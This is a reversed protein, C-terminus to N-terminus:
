RKAKTKRRIRRSTQRPPQEGGLVLPSSVTLERFEARPSPRERQASVARHESSGQPPGVRKPHLLCSTWADLQGMTIGPHTDLRRDRGRVGSVSSTQASLHPNPPMGTETQLVQPASLQETGQGHGWLGPSPSTVRRSPPPLVLGKEIVQFIGRGPTAAMGERVQAGRLAQVHGSLLSEM